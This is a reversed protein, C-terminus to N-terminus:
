SKEDEDKIKTFFWHFVVVIEWEENKWYVTISLKKPTLYNVNFNCYPPLKELKEFYEISASATVCDWLMHKSQMHAEKDLYDFIAWWSIYWYENKMNIQMNMLRENGYETQKYIKM